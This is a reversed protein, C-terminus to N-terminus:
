HLRAKKTQRCLETRLLLVGIRVYESLEMYAEEDGDDEVDPDLRSIEVFDRVIEGSDGPLDSMVGGSGLGFVFGRCWDALASARAELLADDDPLLMIFDYDDSELLTKTEQFLETLAPTVKGQEPNEDEFVEALWHQCRVSDDACLMGTLIGHAEAPSLLSAQDLIESIQSYEM